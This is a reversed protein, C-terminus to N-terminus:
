LLPRLTEPLRPTEDPQKLPVILGKLEAGDQMLAQNTEGTPHFGKQIASIPDPDEGQPDGLMERWIGQRMALATPGHAVQVNCETDIMMSRNNANASGITSWLDDVIAVKAHVYVNTYTKKVPHKKYLVYARVRATGAVQWIRSLQFWQEGAIYKGVVPDEAKDPLVIVVQLDKQNTVATIVSDTLDSSTWYQTEFYLYRQARVIAYHYIKQIQFDGGGFDIPLTHSKQVFLKGATKVTNFPVLTLKGKGAMGWRLNFKELVRYAAPGQMKTM